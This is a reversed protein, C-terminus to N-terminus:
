PSSRRDLDARGEQIIKVVDVRSQDPLRSRLDAARQLIRQMNVAPSQDVGAQLSDRIMMRALTGPLVGLRRANAELRDFDDVDLRLTIAKTTM